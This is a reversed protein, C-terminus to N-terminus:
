MCFLRVSACAPRKRNAAGDVREARQTSHHATSQRSPHLPGIDLLQSQQLINQLDLTRDTRCQLHKGFKCVFESNRVLSSTCRTLRVLACHAWSTCTRTWRASASWSHFCADLVPRWCTTLRGLGLCRWRGDQRRREHRALHRWMRWRNWGFRAMRLTRRRSMSGM